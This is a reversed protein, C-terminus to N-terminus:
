DALTAKAPRSYFGFKPDDRSAEVTATFRVRAGVDVGAGRLAKPMSGWVKWGADSRILMKVIDPGNYVYVNPERRISLVEGAVEVRGAPVPEAAEREAAREAQRADYRKVAEVVAEAQRETLPRVQARSLIEGIFENVPFEGARDLLAAVEPNAALWADYEAQAAAAKREARAQRQAERKDAHARCQEESWHAPYTYVKRQARPDMHRGAFPGSEFVPTRAGCEYCTWGTYAWADGGGRGNCRRCPIPHGINRPRPIDARPFNSKTPTETAEM